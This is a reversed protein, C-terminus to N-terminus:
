ISNTFIGGSVLLIDALPFVFICLLINLNNHGYGVLVRVMM